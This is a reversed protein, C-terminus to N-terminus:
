RIRPCGAIAFSMRGTSSPTVARAAAHRGRRARGRRSADADAGDRRVALARVSERLVAVPPQGVRRDVARLAFAGPGRLRRDDAPEPWAPGCVAGRRRRHQLGRRRRHECRRRGTRRARLLARAVARELVASARRARSATRGMAVDVPRARAAQRPRRARRRAGEDEHRRLDRRGAHPRRRVLAVARRSGVARQRPFDHAVAPLAEVAGTRARRRRDGAVLARMWAAFILPEVRDGAMTGDWTKLRDLADRAADHMPGDPPRTDILLPLLQVAALSRVDAQIAAFSAVDHRATADLLAEIRRARFPAAWESTLFTPDDDAVIKQNATVIRNEPPNLRQPLREFRVFGQWDYRADWGPAPAQGMLDNDARRVPVRGPAVLGINGMTDAYVFSQQPAHFDRMAAVFSSWDSARNVALAAQVTRDDPRLAAWQMALAYDGEQVHGQLTAVADHASRLADSVLPGHRSTRVHLTVDAAGKVHIVEDRTELPQWGDPTRAEVAGDRERLAEIYLDQTDPGTNTAGWAIRDNRGLVVFPLGALTGGIVNMTPTSLHALYWISPASLALHPDNALLPKGSATRAGSVVWDNSGIGEISRDPARAFLMAASSSLAATDVQLRRYLAPYDAVPLPRDATAPVVHGTADVRPNGPYPPMLEDIQQKTLRTALRMRAIEASSNGSLDWAMMTAWGISDAPTWPEPRPAGTLLFEPPMFFRSRTARRALEANVGAAYRALARTTPEDLRAAIAQANRAVGLTRLFRDTDLAGPGLVEALRGAAIRRNLEMQWLRDEAHLFGLAFWADDDSAAYVHPIGAADRVVDVPAGLGAVTLKGDITPLELSRWAFFLGVVAVVVIAITWLLLRVLRRIM